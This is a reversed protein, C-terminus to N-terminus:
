DSDLIVGLNRAQSKAKLSLSDLHAIVKLREEKAGFVIIETKDKNLQLFNQCMWDNIQETCQSLSDIPGYDGPSLAIYIQTDDM